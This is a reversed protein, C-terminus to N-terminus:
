PTGVACASQRIPDPGPRIPGDTHFTIGTTASFGASTPDLRLEVLGSDLLRGQIQFPEKGFSGRLTFAASDNPDIQGAYLRLSQGHADLRVATQGLTKRSQEVGAPDFISVHDSVGWRLWVVDAATPIIDVSVLREPGSAARRGHLFATGDPCAYPARFSHWESPVTFVSWQNFPQYGARGLLDGRDLPDTDYVIKGPPASYCLCQAQLRRVGSVYVYRGWWEPGFHALVFSLGLVLLAIPIMMRRVARTVRRYVLPNAAAPAATM